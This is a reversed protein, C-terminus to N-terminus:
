LIPDDEVIATKLAETSVPGERSVMDIAGTFSEAMRYLEESWEHNKTREAEQILM